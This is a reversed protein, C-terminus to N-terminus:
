QGIYRYIGTRRQRWNIHDLSEVTSNRGPFAHLFENRTILVGVHMDLGQVRFVAVDGEEPQDAPIWLEGLRARQAAIEDSAEKFFDIEWFWHPLFTDYMIHSYARVLQWCNVYRPIVGNDLYLGKEHYQIGIWNM